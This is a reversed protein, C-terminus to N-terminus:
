RPTREGNVSPVCCTLRAPRPRARCGVTRRESWCRTTQAGAPGSSGLGTTTACCSSRGAGSRWPLSSSRRGCVVRATSCTSSAMPPRRAASHRSRVSGSRPLSSGRATRGASSTGTSESQALVPAGALEADAGCAPSPHSPQLAGTAWPIRGPRAAGQLLQTGDFESQARVDWLNARPADRLALVDGRAALLGPPSPRACFNGAPPAAAAERTTPHGGQQWAAFGGDLVRVCDKGFFCFLWWLRTGDYKGALM